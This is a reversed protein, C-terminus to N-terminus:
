KGSAGRLWGIGMGGGSSLIADRWTGKLREQTDAFDQLAWLESLFM